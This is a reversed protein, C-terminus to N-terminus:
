MKLSDAVIHEFDPSRDRTINTVHDSTVFFLPLPHLILQLIPLEKNLYFVALYASTDHLLLELRGAM